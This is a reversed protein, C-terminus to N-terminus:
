RRQVDQSGSTRASHHSHPPSTWRPVGALPQWHCGTAGGPQGEMRADRGLPSQGAALLRPWHAEPSALCGRQPSCARSCHHLHAGAPSSDAPAAGASTARDAAAADPLVLRGPRPGLHPRPASSLAAVDPRLASARPVRASWNVWGQACPCSRDTRAVQVEGHSLVAPGPACGRGAPAGKCGGGCEGRPGPAIGDTAQQGEPWAWGM